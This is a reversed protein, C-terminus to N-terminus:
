GAVSVGDPLGVEPFLEDFTDKDILRAKDMLFQEAAELREGIADAEARVVAKVAAALTAKAVAQAAEAAREESAIVDVAERAADVRHEADAEIEHLFDKAVATAKRAAELASEAARVASYASALAKRAETM